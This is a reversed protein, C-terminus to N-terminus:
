LYARIAGYQFVQNYMPNKKEQMEAKKSFFLFGNTGGRILLSPGKIKNSKLSIMRPPVPWDSRLGPDGLWPYQSCAFKGAKTGSLVM